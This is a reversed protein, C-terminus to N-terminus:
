IAAMYKFPLFGGFGFCAGQSIGMALSLVFLNAFILWYKLAINSTFNVVVPLLIM